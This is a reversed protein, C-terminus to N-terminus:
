GGQRVKHCNFNLSGLQVWLPLSLCSFCFVMTSFFGFGGVCRKKHRETSHRISEHSHLGPHAAFSSGGHHASSDWTLLRLWTGRQARQPSPSDVRGSISKCHCGRLGAAHGGWSWVEGQGSRLAARTGRIRSCFRWRCRVPGMNLDARLLSLYELEHM